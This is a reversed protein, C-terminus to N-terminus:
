MPSMYPTIKKPEDWTKVMLDMKIVNTAMAIVQEVRNMPSTLKVSAKRAFKSAIDNMQARRKREYYQTQYFPIRGAIPWQTRARDALNDM